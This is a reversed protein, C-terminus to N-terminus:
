IKAERRLLRTDLKLVRAANGGYFDAKAEERLKLHNQASDVCAKWTLQPFNTGFMVKKRGITNAFQILEKSRMEANILPEM